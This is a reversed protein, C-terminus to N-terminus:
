PTKNQTPTTAAAAAADQADAAAAAADEGAQSATADPVGSAGEDVDSSANPDPVPQDATAMAQDAPMEVNDATADESADDASGCAALGMAAAAAFATLAFKKM